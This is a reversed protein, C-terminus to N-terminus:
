RDGPKRSGASTTTTTRGEVARFSSNEQRNRPMADRTAHKSKPPDMICLIPIYTQRKRHFDFHHIPQIFFYQHTKSQTQKQYKLPHCKNHIFKLLNLYIPNPISPFNPFISTPFHYSPDCQFFRIKAM